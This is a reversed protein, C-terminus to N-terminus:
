GCFFCLHPLKHTSVTRCSSRHPQGSSLWLIKKLEHRARELSLRDDFRRTTPWSNEPQLLVPSICFAPHRWIASVFCAGFCSCLGFVFLFFVDLFSLSVSRKWFSSIRPARLVEERKKKPQRSSPYIGPPVGKLWSFLPTLSAITTLVPPLWVDFVYYLFMCRPWLNLLGDM